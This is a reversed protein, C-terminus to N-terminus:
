LHQASTSKERSNYLSAIANNRSLLYKRKDKHQWVFFFQNSSTEKTVVSMVKLYAAVCLWFLCM